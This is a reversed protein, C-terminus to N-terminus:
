SNWFLLDTVAIPKDSITTDQGRPVKRLNPLGLQQAVKPSKKNHSFCFYRFVVMDHCCHHFVEPFGRSERYVAMM